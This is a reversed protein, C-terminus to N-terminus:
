GTKVSARVPAGGDVPDIVLDRLQFLRAYGHQDVVREFWRMTVMSQIRRNIEAKSLSSIEIIKKVIHATIPDAGSHIIMVIALYLRDPDDFEFAREMMTKGETLGPVRNPPFLGPQKWGYMPTSRLVPAVRMPVSAPMSLSSSSPLATALVDSTVPSVFQAVRQLYKQKAEVVLPADSVDPACREPRIRGKHAGLWWLGMLTGCTMQAVTLLHVMHPVLDGVKSSWEASSLNLVKHPVGEGYRMPLCDRDVVYMHILEDRQRYEGVYSVVNMDLTVHLEERVERILTQDRTEGVNSTGGVCDYLSATKEQYFHGAITDRGESRSLIILKCAVRQVRIPDALKVSVSGAQVTRDARPLTRRVEQVQANLTTDGDYARYPCCTGEQRYGSDWVVDNGQLTLLSTYPGRDKYRFTRVPTPSALVAKADMVSLINKQAADLTMPVKGTRPRVLILGQTASGYRVGFVVEWVDGEFRVEESPSFKVRYEGMPTMVMIGESWKSPKFSSCAQWEHPVFIAGSQEFPVFTAYPYLVYMKGAFEEVLDAFFNVPVPIERYGVLFAQDGRIVKVFRSGPIKDRYALISRGDAGSHHFTAWDAKSINRRGLSSTSSTAEVEDLLGPFSNYDHRMGKRSVATASFAFVRGIVFYHTLVCDFHGALYRSKIWKEEEVDCEHVKISIILSERVAMAAIGDEFLIEEWPTMEESLFAPEPKKNMVHVYSEFQARAVGTLGDGATYGWYKL